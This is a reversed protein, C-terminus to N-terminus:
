VQLGKMYILDKEEDVDPLVELLQYTLNLQNCKKITTELVDSTSWAIENFLEATFKKMGLLYYGGDIAPGIVVDAANLESFAKQILDMNIGPCDTGILVVMENGCDFAYQFANAMREGLDSGFQVQKEYNANQWIDDQEMYDSYFIIKNEKLELTALQTHQVLMTYVKAAEDNGVTAALRTKVKGPINNKLFILLANKM